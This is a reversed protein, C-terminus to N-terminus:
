RQGDNRRVTRRMTEKGCNLGRSNREFISCWNDQEGIPIQGITGLRPQKWINIFQGINRNGEGGFEIVDGLISRIFEPRVQTVGGSQSPRPCNWTRWLQHMSNTTDFLFISRSVDIVGRLIVLSHNM